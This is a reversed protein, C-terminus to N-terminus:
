IPEEDVHATVRRPVAIEPEPVGTELATVPAEANAAQRVPLLRDDREM